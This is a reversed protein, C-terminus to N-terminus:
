FPRSRGVRGARPPILAASIRAHLAPGPERGNRLDKVLNPDKAVRRGFSCPRDGTIRLHREVQTLISM